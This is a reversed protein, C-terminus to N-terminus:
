MREIITAAFEDMEHLDLSVEFDSVVTARLVRQETELLDSKTQAMLAMVKSREDDTAGLLTLAEGMSQEYNEFGNLGPEKSSLIGVVSSIPISVRPEAFKAQNTRESAKTKPQRRDAISSGLPGCTRSKTSGAAGTAAPNEVSASQSSPFRRGSAFGLAICFLPIVVRNSKM